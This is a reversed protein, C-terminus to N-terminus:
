IAVVRYFKPVEIFREDSEMMAELMMRHKSWMKVHEVLFGFTGGVYTLDGSSAYLYVIELEPDPGLKAIRDLKLLKFIVFGSGVGGLGALVILLVQM